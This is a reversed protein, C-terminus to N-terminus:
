LNYLDKYWAIWRNLETDPITAAANMVDLSTFVSFRKNDAILAKYENITKDLHYNRPHRVVSFYVHKYPSTNDNEVALGLLQNRWLQNM